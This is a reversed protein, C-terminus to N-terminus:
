GSWSSAAYTSGRLASAESTVSFITRANVLVIFGGVLAGLLRATVKRVLWAALPAAALGGILLSFLVPWAIM